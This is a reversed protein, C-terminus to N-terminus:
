VKQLMEKHIHSIRQLTSAMHTPMGAGMMINISRGDYEPVERSMAAISQPTFQFHVPPSNPLQVAPTPTFAGVIASAIQDTVIGMLSPPGKGQGDLFTHNVLDFAMSEAFEEAMSKRLLHFPSTTTLSTSVRSFRSAGARFM